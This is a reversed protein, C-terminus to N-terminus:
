CGFHFTNLSYFLPMAERYFRRNVLLPSLIDPVKSTELIHSRTEHDQTIDDFSSDDGLDCSRVIPKKTAPSSFFLGSRPFQFVMQYIKDGLERPLEFFPFHKMDIHEDSHLLGTTTDTQEDSHPLDLWGEGTTPSITHCAEGEGNDSEVTRLPLEYTRYGTELLDRFHLPAPLRTSTCGVVETSGLFSEVAVMRYYSFISMIWACVESRSLATDSTLLAMVILQVGTFPPQYKSNRWPAVAAEIRNRVTGRPLPVTM